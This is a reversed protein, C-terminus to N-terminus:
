PDCALGAMRLTDVTARLAFTSQGLRAQLGLADVIQSPQIGPKEFDKRARRTAGYREYLTSRAMRSRHIRNPRFSGHEQPLSRTRELPTNPPM